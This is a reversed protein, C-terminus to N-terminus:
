HSGATRQASHEVLYVKRRLETSEREHDGRLQVINEQFRTSVRELAARLAEASDQLESKLNHEGEKRALAEQAESSRLRLRLNSDFTSSLLTTESQLAEHALWVQALDSRRVADSAEYVCKLTDSQLERQTHHHNSVESIELQLRADLEGLAGELQAL